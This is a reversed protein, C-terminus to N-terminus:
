WTETTKKPLLHTMEEKEKRDRTKYFIFVCKERGGSLKISLSKAFHAKIKKKKKKM